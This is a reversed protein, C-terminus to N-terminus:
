CSGDLLMDTTVLCPAGAPWRVAATDDGPGILVRADAPTRARLWEIYAFEGSVAMQSPGGDTRPMFAPRCGRAHPASNNYPTICASSLAGCTGWRPGRM